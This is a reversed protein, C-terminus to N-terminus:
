SAIQIEAMQDLGTIRLLTNISGTRPVVLTLATSGAIAFLARVAASDCYRVGTMNVVLASETAAKAVANKFAEVTALDIEGEATVVPPQRSNDTALTLQPQTM